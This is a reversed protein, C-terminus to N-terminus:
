IRRAVDCNNPLAKDPRLKYIKWGKDYVQNKLDSIAKRDKADDGQKM